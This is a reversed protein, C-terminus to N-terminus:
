AVATKTDSWMATAEALGDISAESSAWAVYGDPRILLAAPVPVLGLVPLRWQRGPWHALVHSIPAPVDVNALKVFDLLVPRGSYLLEFVRRRDGGTVIDADPVRRGVLPHQGVGPYRIDLGSIEAAVIDNAGPVQLMGRTRSYMAAANDGQALLATQARTNDLVNAAVPHREDTYSDLLDDSAYGNLVAALKWGLNMADQIGLNMGQGGLPPHIHAADGALFIRGARYSTAQRAADGFSSLWRPSHIGYDSGAVRRMTDRLLEFSMPATPDRFEYDTVMIRYWDEGTLSGFPLMTFTGAPRRELFVRGAPPNQVAVDGLLTIHNADSGPFALGALQRVTSRGGDCGVVYDARRIADGGPGRTTVTVGDDGQEVGVVTTSWEVGAGLEVAFRELLRETVSQMLMLTYPYRTPQTSMDLSLGAFHVADGSRGVTLFTDLMGRQDLVEMTRAHMGAARSADGRRDLGDVLEVSVGARRLECALTLGTPGAGAIVVHGM